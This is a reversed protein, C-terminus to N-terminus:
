KPKAYRHVAGTGVAGYSVQLKLLSHLDKLEGALLLHFASLPMQLSTQNLLLLSYKLVPPSAKIVSIHLHKATAILFIILM